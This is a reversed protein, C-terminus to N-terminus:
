SVVGLGDQLGDSALDGDNWRCAALVSVGCAAAVALLGLIYLLRMM